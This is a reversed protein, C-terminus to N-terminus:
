NMAPRGRRCVALVLTFQLVVVTVSTPEPVLTLTTHEAAAIDNQLSQFGPVPTAVADPTDLLLLPADAFLSLAGSYTPLTRFVVTAVRDNTGPVVNTGALDFDTLTIRHRTASDTNAADVFNASSPFVYSAAAPTTAAVDFYFDTGATGTTSELVLDINYSGLNSIAPLVVDFSVPQGPQYSSPLGSILQIPAAFTSYASMSVCLAASFFCRLM